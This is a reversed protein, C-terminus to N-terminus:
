YDGCVVVRGARYLLVHSTRDRGGGRVPGEISFM